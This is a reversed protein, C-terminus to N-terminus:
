VKSVPAVVNVALDPSLIFILLCAAVVNVVTPVAMVKAVPVTSRSLPDSRVTFVAPPAIEIAEIPPSLSSNTTRM